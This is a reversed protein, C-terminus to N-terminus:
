SKKNLMAVVPPVLVTYVYTLYVRWDSYYEAGTFPRTFIYDLVVLVVAWVLGYVLAEKVGVGLKTALYYLIGLNAAVTVLWAVTSGTDLKLAIMASVLLFMVAYIVAPYGLLKKWDLKM